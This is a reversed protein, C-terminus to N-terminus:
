LSMMNLIVCSNTEANCFSKPPSFLNSNDHKHISAAPPAPASYSTDDDCNEYLNNSGLLHYLETYLEADKTLPQAAENDNQVPFDDPEVSDVKAEFSITSYASTIKNKIPPPVLNKSSEANDQPDFGTFQIHIEDTAPVSLNDLNNPNNPDHSILSQDMQDDHNLESSSELEPMSNNSPNSTISSAYSSDKENLSILTCSDTEPLSDHDFSPAIVSTDPVLDHESKSSGSHDRFLPDALQFQEKDSTSASNNNVTNIITGHLTIITKSETQLTQQDDHEM